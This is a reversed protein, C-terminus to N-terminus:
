KGEVVPGCHQGEPIDSIKYGALSFLSSNLVGENIETISMTYSEGTSKSTSTVELIMGKKNAWLFWDGKGVFEGMMGCHSLLKYIRWLNFNFDNTVWLISAYEKSDIHIEHCSLRDVIRKNRLIKVDNKKGTSSDQYMSAAHIRTAQKVNGFEMGMTWTSDVPNFLM